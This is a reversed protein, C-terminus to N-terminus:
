ESTLIGDGALLGVTRNFSDPKRYNKHNKQFVHEVADPHTLLYVYVGPFARIRVYDGFQHWCRTYLGLPDRQIQRLCGWLWHGDPGPPTRGSLTGQAGSEIM